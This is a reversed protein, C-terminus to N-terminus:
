TVLVVHVVLTVGLTVTGVVSGVMGTVGTVSAGGFGLSVEVAPVAHLAAQTLSQAVIDPVAAM